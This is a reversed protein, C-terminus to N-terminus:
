RGRLLRNFEVVTIGADRLLGRATGKAVPDHNPVVLIDEGRSLVIHSGRQRSVSFGLKKFVGVMQEGSVSPLRDSTM